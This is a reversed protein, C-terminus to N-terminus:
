TQAPQTPTAIRQRAREAEERGPTNVGRRHLKLTYISFPSLRHSLYVSGVTAAMLPVHDPAAGHRVSCSPWCAACSARRYCGHDGGLRAPTSRFCSWPAKSISSRQRGRGPCSCRCRSRRGAPGTRSPAPRCWAEPKLSRAEPEPAERRSRGGAGLRRHRDRPVTALRGDARAGAHRDREGRRLQHGEPQARAGCWAGTASLGVCPLRQRSGTRWPERRRGATSLELGAGCAGGWRSQGASVRRRRPDGGAVLLAGARAARAVASRLATEHDPNATGLSLNILDVDHAAAWDIAAVLTEISASLHRDFVKVGLLEADPAREHIAAAVATGHGLRDIYDGSTSGDPAIATGGAVGAVHPHAPNVGSDIVAVRVPRTTM